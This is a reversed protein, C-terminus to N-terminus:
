KNELHNIIAYAEAITLLQTNSVYENRDIFIDQLSDYVLYSGNEKIVEYRNSKPPKININTETEQYAEVLAKQLYGAMFQWAEENDPLHREQAITKGEIYVAHAKEEPSLNTPTM